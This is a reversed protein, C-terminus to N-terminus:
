AELNFGVSFTNFDIDIHYFCGPWGISIRNCFHKYRGFIKGILMRLYKRHNLVIPWLIKGFMISCASSKLEVVVM